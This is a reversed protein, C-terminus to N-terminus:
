AVWDGIELEYFNYYVLIHKQPAFIFIKQNKEGFDVHFICYFCTKAVISIFEQSGHICWVNLISADLILIRLLTM